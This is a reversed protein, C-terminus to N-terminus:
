RWSNDHYGDMVLQSDVSQEKLTYQELEMLPLPRHPWRSHQACDSHHCVKLVIDPIIIALGHM